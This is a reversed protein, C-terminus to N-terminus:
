EGTNVQKLLGGEVVLPSGDEASAGGGKGRQESGSRCPGPGVGARVPRASGALGWLHM